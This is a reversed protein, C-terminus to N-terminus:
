RDLKARLDLMRERWGEVRQRDPDPLSSADFGEIAGLIELHAARTCELDLALEGSEAAGSRASLADLAGNLAEAVDQFENGDRVGIRRPAKGEEIRLLERKFHYIPGAMRHAMRLGTLLAFLGGTGAMLAAWVIGIRVLSPAPRAVLPLGDQMASLEYHMFVVFAITSIMVNFATLGLLRFIQRQKFSQEVTFYSWQSRHSRGSKGDAM